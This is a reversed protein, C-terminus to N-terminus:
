LASGDTPTSGRTLCLPAPEQGDAGAKDSTRMVEAIKNKVYDFPSAGPAAAPRQQLQQQQYLWAQHPASLRVSGAGPPPRQGVVGPSGAQAVRM